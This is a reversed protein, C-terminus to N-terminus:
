KRARELELYQPYKKMMGLLFPRLLPYNAEDARLAADALSSLFSGGQCTPHLVGNCWDLVDPDLQVIAPGIPMPTGAYTDWQRKLQRIHRAATEVDADTSEVGLSNEVIIAADELAACIANEM